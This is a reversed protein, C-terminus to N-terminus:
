VIRRNTKQLKNFSAKDTVKVMYRRISPRYTFFLASRGWSPPAM